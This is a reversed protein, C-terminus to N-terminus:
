IEVSTCGRDAYYDEDLSLPTWEIVEMGVRSTGAKRIGRAAGGGRMYAKTPRHVYTRVNEKVTQVKIEVVEEEEEDDDIEVIEVEPVKRVEEKGKGKGKGKDKKKADEEDSSVMDVLGSRTLRAMRREARQM